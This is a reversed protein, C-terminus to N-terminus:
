LSPVRQIGLLNGLPDAAYTGDRVTHCRNQGLLHGVPYRRGFVASQYPVDDEPGIADLRMYHMKIM